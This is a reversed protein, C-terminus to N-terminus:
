RAQVISLYLRENDADRVAFRHGPLDYALECLAAFAHREKDFLDRPRHHFRAYDLLLLERPLKNAGQGGRDNGRTNVGQEHSTNIPQSVRADGRLQCRGDTALEGVRKETSHALTALLCKTIIESTDNIGAESPLCRLAVRLRVHEFM